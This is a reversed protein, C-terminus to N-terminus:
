LVGQMGELRLVHTRAREAQDGTRAFAAAISACLKCQRAQQASGTLVSKPVPAMVARRARYRLDQKEQPSMGAVEAWSHPRARLHVLWSPGQGNSGFSRHVLGFLLPSENCCGMAALM